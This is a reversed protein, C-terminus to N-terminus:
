LQNRPIISVIFDTYSLPYALYCYCLTYSIIELRSNQDFSVLSISPWVSLFRHMHAWRAYSCTHYYFVSTALCGAHGTKAHSPEFDVYNCKIIIVGPSDQINPWVEPWRHRSLVIHFLRYKRTIISLRMTLAWIMDPRTMSYVKSLLLLHVMIKLILVCYVIYLTAVSNGCCFEIVKGQSIMVANCFEM